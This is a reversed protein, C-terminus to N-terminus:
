FKPIDIPSDLLTKIKEQWDMRIEKEIPLKRMLNSIAFIVSGIRKTNVNHWYDKKPVIM